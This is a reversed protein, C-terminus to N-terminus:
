EGGKGKLCPYSSLQKKPDVFTSIGISSCQEGHSAKKHESLIDRWVVKMNENPSDGLSSFVLLWLVCGLYYQCVGLHLVHLEDAEINEVSLYKIM